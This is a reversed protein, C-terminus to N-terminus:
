RLVLARMAHIRPAWNEDTIGYSVLHAAMDPESRAWDRAEECERHDESWLLPLMAAEDGFWETFSELVDAVESQPSNPGHLVSAERLASLPVHWPIEKDPRKGAAASCAKRTLLPHGGFERYLFDITTADRYRLGMRRGLSRVMEQMEDRKMPSLFSLRAFKYLLNDRGNLLPREFIAPDVGACVIAISNEGEADRSQIVGRLQILCKLVATAEQAGVNSRGGPWAQDIEDIFLELRGPLADLLSRLDRIWYTELPIAPNPNGDRTLTMLRPVARGTQRVMRHCNELLALQFQEATLGSIELRVVPKGLGERHQSVFNLLSTKGAKRLGFVGVHQGRDLAFDLKAVEARRGYFAVPETIPTTLDYHDHTVMIRAIRERLGVQPGRRLENADVTLIALQGRRRKVLDAASRDPTLLIAFDPDLRAEGAHLREAITNLTRPEVREYSASLCLVELHLDFTERVNEPLTIYIWWRRGDRPDEVFKNPEAGMELLLKNFERGGEVKREFKAKHDALVQQNHTSAM